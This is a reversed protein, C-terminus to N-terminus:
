GCAAVFASCEPCESIVPHTCSAAHGLFEDAAALMTMRARIAARRRDIAALRDDHSATAFEQMERLSWGVSQGIRVLRAQDLLDDDYDRHGSPLRRPVLVGVDEWHRLVHADIGLRAAADGIRM